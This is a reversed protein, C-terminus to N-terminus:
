GAVRRGAGNQAMPSDSDAPEAFFRALARYVEPSYALGIHSANVFLTPTDNIQAEPPVVLDNHGHISLISTRPSLPSMVDRVFPCYCRPYDCDPDIIRRMMTSTRMLMRSVPGIPVTTRGSEVSVMFSAVPAGLLVLHSVGEQFISALTWALAGGRSHGILAIPRADEELRSKIQPLIANRLRNLCGANFEIQSSVPKYGVCRLWTLLPQLYLDSGFLGPFVAVSRGDGRKVGIGYFVPDALLGALDFFTLTERIMVSLSGSFFSSMSPPVVSERM